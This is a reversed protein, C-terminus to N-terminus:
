LYHLGVPSDPFFFVLMVHADPLKPVPHVGYEKVYKNYKMAKISEFYILFEAM